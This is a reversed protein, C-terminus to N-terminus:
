TINFVTALLHLLRDRFHAFTHREEFRLRGAEGMTRRLHDDTLLPVIADALADPDNRPVLFGTEYNTIVEAASDTANGICPLGDRMAELHVLAGGAGPMAFVAVRRRLARLSADPLWDTFLVSEREGGLQAALRANPGEQGVVVLQADPVRSRVEAWAEILVRAGRRREGPDVRNLVLVSRPQVRELLRADSDTAAAGPPVSPGWAERGPRPEDPLLALPCVHIPGLGPHSREIRRATYATGAIRLAAGELAHLRHPTLAHNWVERGHLFLAYPRRSSSPVRLAIRALGLHTYLWWDPRATLQARVVRRLFRFTDSRGGTAPVGERSLQVTPVEGCCDVLVRRVLRSVYAVAGGDPSLTPVALAPPRLSPLDHM